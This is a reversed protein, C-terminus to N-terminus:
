RTPLYNLIGIALTGGLFILWLSDLHLNGLGEALPLLLVALQALVVFNWATVGPRRAGLVAVAACGTLCLAVYRIPTVAGGPRLESLLFGAGWAVWGAYAWVLAHRLTTGQNARWARALPYCATLLILGCIM